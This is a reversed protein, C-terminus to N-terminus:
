LSAWIQDREIKLEYSPESNKAPGSVVAGTKIDFISGHCPCQVKEGNISGESLLCGEHTCTNGIAFYQGSLNAILMKKGNSEIEMMKGPLIANVSTLVVNM